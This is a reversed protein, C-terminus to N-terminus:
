VINNISFDLASAETAKKKETQSVIPLNALLSSILTQHNLFRSVAAEKKKNLFQDSALKFQLVINISCSIGRRKYYAAPM